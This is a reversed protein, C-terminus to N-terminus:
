PNVVVSGGVAPITDVFRKWAEHMAFRNQSLAGGYWVSSTRRVSSRAWMRQVTVAVGVTPVRVTFYPPLVARRDGPVELRLGEVSVDIIHSPLGNVVAEFRNISKRVSRRVPRGDLIAMSVFCNLLTREIPRTLYVTQGNISEGGRAGSGVEGIVISPAYKGAGQPHIGRRFAFGADVILLAFPRDRMEDAVAQPTSRKV